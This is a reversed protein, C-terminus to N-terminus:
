SNVSERSMSRSIVVADAAQGDLVLTKVCSAAVLGDLVDCHLVALSFKCREHDSPIEEIVM